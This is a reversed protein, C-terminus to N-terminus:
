TILVGTMKINNPNLKRITNKLIDYKVRRGPNALSTRCTPGSFSPRKIDIEPIPDKTPESIIAEM